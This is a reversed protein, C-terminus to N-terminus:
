TGAYESTAEAPKGSRSGAAAACLQSLKESTFLHSTHMSRSAKVSTAGTAAGGGGAAAARRLYPACATSASVWNRCVYTVTCRMTMLLLGISGDVEAPSSISVSLLQTSNDSVEAGCTVRVPQTENFGDQLM